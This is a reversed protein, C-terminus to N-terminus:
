NGPPDCLGRRRRKLATEFLRVLDEAEEEIELDSDRLVRFAGKGVVEYGPFLKGIFLSIITEIPIFRTARKGEAKRETPLVVFRGIQNPMRLLATMGAGGTVPRLDLILSFGLNPIFPFPHAPDIALPTLVPFIHQLFYEELWDTEAQSMNQAEVIFIGEDALESRLQRFRAQQESQLKSVAESIKELQESPTLGDDSITTVDARQQGRLGAVRVMFFEDLNNASISLFRLRELLPHSPNMSEELVRRNFQLWSLERNVFREPKSMMMLGGAAETNLTDISDEEFSNIESFGNM